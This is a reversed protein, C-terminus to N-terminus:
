LSTRDGCARTLLTREGWLRSMSVYKPVFGEFGFADDMGAQKAHGRLNNGYDFTDAGREQLTLMARVHDKM